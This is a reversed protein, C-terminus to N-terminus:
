LRVFPVGMFVLYFRAIGASGLWELIIGCFLRESLLAKKSIRRMILRTRRVCSITGRQCWSCYEMHTVFLQTKLLYENYHQCSLVPFNSKTLSVAVSYILTLSINGETHTGSWQGKDDNNKPWFTSNGQVKRKQPAIHILFFYFFLKRLNSVRSSTAAKNPM